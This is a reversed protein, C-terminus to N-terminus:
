YCVCVCVWLCMYGIYVNIINSICYKGINCKWLYYGSCHELISTSHHFFSNRSFCFFFCSPSCNCFLCFHFKHACILFLYISPYINFIYVISYAAISTVIYCCDKRSDMKNIVQCKHCKANQRITIYNEILIITIVEFYRLCFPNLNHISSFFTWQEMCKINFSTFFWSFWSM